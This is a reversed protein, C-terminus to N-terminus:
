LGPEQAALSNALVLEDAQDTPQAVIQKGPWEQERTVGRLVADNMLADGGALMWQLLPADPRLSQDAPPAHFGEGAIVRWHALTAISSRPAVTPHAAMLVDALAATAYRRSMDDHIHGFILQYNLNLEPALCILFTLVDGTSLSLRRRLLSLPETANAPDELWAILDRTIAELAETGAAPERSAHVQRLQDLLNEARERSVCLSEHEKSPNRRFWAAITEDL